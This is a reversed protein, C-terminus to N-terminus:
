KYNSIYQAAREAAQGKGYLDISFDSRKTKFYEFAQALKLSDSGVLINFGNEVLEVWETQERLIICHKGFFFAEKQVGGSDTIVIESNKLLMIMDFYGVPEIMKFEPIINQQKLINRTRPHIPVVVPIQRNIENLGAVINTLKEISDTNEQRHITGLVFKPQNITKLIDSKMEAKEAYYLAADQMVDGSKFIQIPINDFGEKKLNNVATDTPCFLLNSIRDTLIRNIEEPMEMNFSRLGAEVHIVPIHLKAAALAGALTSNTDGYVLVGDPKENILIEEIGELMRGTMAGHTLGHIDLNYAPKPIEMEEFFVESMNSDFHQGTHIILEEIGLLNFQRSLTAAKVFQPRAGVITIIKNM